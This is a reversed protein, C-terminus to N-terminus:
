EVERLLIGGADFTIGSGDFRAVVDRGGLGQFMLETRACQITM